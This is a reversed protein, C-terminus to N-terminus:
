STLLGIIRNAEDVLPQGKTPSLRGTRILTDVHRVFIELARVSFGELDRRLFRDAIRLVAIMATANGHSLFRAAELARVQAILGDLAPQPATAEMLFYRTVTPSSTLYGRGVIQGRDNISIAEQLVWESGAPILDNLDFVQGARALFAREGTLLFMMGVVDGATNVDNPRSNYAGTAEVGLSSISGSAVDYVLAQDAVFSPLRGQGVVKGANSVARADSLYAAGRVLLSVAGGHYLFGRRPSGSLEVEGVVEGGRSIDRACTFDYTGQTPSLLAHLDTVAGNAYVFARHPDPYVDDYRNLCGVIVNSDNIAYNFSDPALVTLAQVSTAGAPAWIAQWRNDTPTGPLSAFSFGAVAGANNIGYLASLQDGAPVGLDRWV